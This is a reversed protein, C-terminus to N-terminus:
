SDIKDLRVLSQGSFNNNKGPITSFGSLGVLRSSQERCYSQQAWFVSLEPAKSNEM